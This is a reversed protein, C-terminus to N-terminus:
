AGKANEIVVEMSIGQRPFGREVELKAIEQDINKVSEVSEVKPLNM